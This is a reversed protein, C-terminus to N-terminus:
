APLNQLDKQLKDVMEGLLGLTQAEVGVFEIGMGPEDVGAGASKSWAVRGRLKCDRMGPLQLLVSVESGTPPATHSNVFVGGTSLNTGWGSFYGEASTVGVMVEHNVRPTRRSPIKADKM